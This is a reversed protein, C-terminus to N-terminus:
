FLEDLDKYTDESRRTIKGVLVRKEKDSIAYVIRWSGVRIRHRVGGLKKVGTPRPNEALHDIADSLREKNESSLKGFERTARSTFTIEYM